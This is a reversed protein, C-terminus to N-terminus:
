YYIRAEIKYKGGSDYWGQAANASGTNYEVYQLTAPLAAINYNQIAVEGKYHSRAYGMAWWTANLAAGNQTTTYSFGSVCTTKLTMFGKKGVAVTPLSITQGYTTFVCEFMNSYMDNIGNIPNGNIDKLELIGARLLM